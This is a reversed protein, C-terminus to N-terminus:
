KKGRMFIKIIDNNGNIQMNDMRYFAMRSSKSLYDDVPVRKGPQPDIFKVKGNKVEAM